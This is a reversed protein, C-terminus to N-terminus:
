HVFTLVSVIPLISLICKFSYNLCWTTTSLGNLVQYLHVNKIHNSLSNWLTLCYVTFSRYNYANRTITTARLQTANSINYSHNSNKATFMDCLYQPALRGYLTDKKSCFTAYLTLTKFM